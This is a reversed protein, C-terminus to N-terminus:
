VNLRILAVVSCLKQRRTYMMRLFSEWSQVAVSCFHPVNRASYSLLMVFLVNDNLVKKDNRWVFVSSKQMGEM